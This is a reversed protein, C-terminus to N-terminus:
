RARGTGAFRQILEYRSAAGTKKLLSAVQNAVTRVATQRAKAIAANTDGRVIRLLVDREAVSLTEPPELSEARDEWSFVMMEEGEVEIHEAVLGRPPRATRARVRAMSQLMM